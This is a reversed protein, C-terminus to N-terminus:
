KLKLRSKMFATKKKSKCTLRTVATKNKFTQLITQAALLYKVKRSSVPDFTSYLVHFYPSQQQMILFKYIQYVFYNM